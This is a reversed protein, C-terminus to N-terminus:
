IAPVIFRGMIRTNLRFNQVSFCLVNKIWIMFRYLHMMKLSEWLYEGFESDHVCPQILSNGLMRAFAIETQWYRCNFCKNIWSGRWRWQFGTFFNYNNIKYLISLIAIESEAVFKQRDLNPKHGEGEAAIKDYHRDLTIYALHRRSTVRTCTRWLLWATTTLNLLHNSVPRVEEFDWSCSFIQHHLRRWM